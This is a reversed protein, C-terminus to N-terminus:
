GILRLAKIALHAALRDSGSSLDIEVLEEIKALRYYLGARHLALQEATRKADGAFDLYTELTELYKPKDRLRRVRRDISSRGLEGPPVHVLLQYVGLDDWGLTSDGPAGISTAVRATLCARRYSGSVDEFADVADGYAVLPLSEIVGAQVLPAVADRVRMAVDAPCSIELADLAVVLIVCDWHTTAALSRTAFAHRERRIIRNLISDEVADDARRPGPRVIMAVLRGEALRGDSILSAGAAARVDADRDSLLLEVLERERAIQAQQALGAGYLHRRVLDAVERCYSVDAESLSQEPDLVAVFGRLRGEERIPVCLRSQAGLEPNPPLRMPEACDRLGLTTVWEIMEAPTQRLIVSQERIADVPQRHASHAVLAHREDEVVVSRGLYSALDDVIEQIDHFV